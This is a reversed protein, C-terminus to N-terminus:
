RAAMPTMAPYFAHSQGLANTISTRSRGERRLRLKDGERGSRDRDAGPGASNYTYTWTSTTGSSAALRGQGPSKNTYRWTGQPTLTKTIAGGNVVPAAAGATTLTKTLMNGNADYTYSFTRNGESIQSPLHFNSLWTTTITLAQPTGSAM